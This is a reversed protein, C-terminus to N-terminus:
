RLLGAGRPARSAPPEGGPQIREPDDTAARSAVAVLRERVAILGLVFEIGAVDNDSPEEHRTDAARAPAHNRLLEDLRACGSLLGLAAQALLNRDDFEVTQSDLITQRM